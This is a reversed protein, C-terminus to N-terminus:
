KKNMSNVTNEHGIFELCSMNNINLSYGLYKSMVSIVDYITERQKVVAKDKVGVKEEYINIQAKIVSQLITLVEIPTSFLAVKIKPYLIKLDNVAESTRQVIFRTFTSKSEMNILLILRNEIDGLLDLTLSIKALELNKDITYKGAKNNRLEYFEDYLKKWHESLIELQKDSYKYGIKHNHNLYEIDNKEVIQWFTTINLLGLNV